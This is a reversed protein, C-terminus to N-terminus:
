KRAVNKTSISKLVIRAIIESEICIDNDQLHAHITQLTARITRKANKSIHLFARQLHEFRITHLYGEFYQLPEPIWAWFETRIPFHTSLVCAAITCKDRLNAMDWFDFISKDRQTPAYMTKPATRIMACTLPVDHYFSAVHIPLFGYTNSINLLEPTLLTCIDDFLAHKSYSFLQAFRHLPTNGDKTKATLVDPSKDVLFKIQSDSFSTTYDGLLHIPRCGFEDSVDADEDYVMEIIKKSLGHQCAVHLPYQGNDNAVIAASPRKAFVHAIKDEECTTIAFHLPTENNYNLVEYAEPYEDFIKLMDIFDYKIAYM